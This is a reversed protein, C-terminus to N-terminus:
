MQGMEAFMMVTQILQKFDGLTILLKAGIGDDQVKASFGISYNEPIGMLMGSLMQMQAAADPDTKAILEMVSNIMTLPSIGFLLNNDTGLKEILKQYSLNTALSEGTKAKVDLAGTETKQEKENMSEGTKAKVDLASKILEPGGIAFFLQKDSIAYSWHWEQPLIVALEPPIDAPFATGFNPFVFTKIEVGNHLIPEGVYAGDYMSFQPLDGTSDKIIGMMKSMNDLFREDYYTKVKQEDKLGYIILYDPIISDEFDATISWEDEMVEYLEKMEAILAEWDANQQEDGNTDGVSLSVGSEDMAFAKVWRMSWDLLLEPNGQFSGNLFAQNPLQDLLRLEADSMKKLAEQIEGDGSFKLFPAFQVDTGDIQLTASISKLEEVLQIVTDFVTKAVPVAEMSTPDSEMADLTSELEGRMTESFPAIISKLDFYVALQNTGEIIDTLFTSYDPNHIIGHKKGNRIDIINECVEAEQSFVLTNELIAFHGSDEETSWYTVGNYETPTSGEAEVEIVHLMAEPDTLHVTASLSMPDLSNFFIAFDKKLDLGIEELESLSEFGAGFADALIEALIDPPAGAQPMLELALMNIKNDLEFLSTCYILGLAKEPILNLVSGDPILAAINNLKPPPKDAPASEAQAASPSAEPPAEAVPSGVFLLTTLLALLLIPLPLRRIM